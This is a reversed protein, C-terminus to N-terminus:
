KIAACAIQLPDVASSRLHQDAFGIKKDAAMRLVFSENRRVARLNEASQFVWPHRPLGVSLSGYMWM